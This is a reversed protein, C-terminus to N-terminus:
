FDVTVREFGDSERGEDAGLRENSPEATHVRDVCRSEGEFELFGGVLFLSILIDEPVMRRHHQTRNQRLQRPNLTNRITFVEGLM